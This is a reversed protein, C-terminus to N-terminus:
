LQAPAKNAVNPAGGLLGVQTCAKTPAMAPCAHRSLTPAVLDGSGAKVAGIAEEGLVIFKPLVTTALPVESLVILEPLVIAPLPLAASPLEVREADLRPIEIEM